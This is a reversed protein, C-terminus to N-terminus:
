LSLGGSIELVQGTIYAAEASALFVAAAAIDDVTGFRKLVIKKLAAEKVKDPLVDTMDTEIFGPAIANVTIGRSGVEKALSRTLGIVGAKSAAYNAQGANGYIGAVSAMNIIRGGRSKVMDTLVERSMIFTGNLNATIVDTFQETKMRMALGDRTIGANNVLLYISGLEERVQKVLKMCDEESSIDAQVAIAEVGIKRCSQVVTEAKGASGLYSIAINFGAKALSLACAAGIGRSGGTILANKVEASKEVASM